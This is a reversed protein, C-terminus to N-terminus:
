GQEPKCLQQVTGSLLMSHSEDAKQQQRTGAPLHGQLQSM